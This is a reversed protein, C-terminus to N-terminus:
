RRFFSINGQQNTVSLTASGEGNTGIVRRGNGVINMGNSFVGLSINRTSPATATLRFSANFPIHLNITGRTSSFRYTGGEMIDGDFFIDGMTNEAAVSSSGINTLNIDGESTIKARVLGSRVNTINVNGILTEIDVMAYYPVRVLFNVIGVEARGQNDKVLNIVITGSLNQPVINAAPSELEATINIDTRDWGEVVVTGSRNLLAFKVANQGTPYTKSFRKQATAGGVLAFFFVVSTLLITTKAVPSRGLIKPSRCIM